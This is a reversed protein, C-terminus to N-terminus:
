FTTPYYMFHPNGTEILSVALNNRQYQNVEPIAAWVIWPYFFIVGLIITLKVLRIEM